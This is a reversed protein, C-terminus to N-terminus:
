KGADNLAFEQRSTVTGDPLRVVATVEAQQGDVSMERQPVTFITGLDYQQEIKAPLWTAKAEIEGVFLVGAVVAFCLIASILRLHKKM